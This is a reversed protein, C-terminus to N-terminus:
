GQARGEVERVRRGRTGAYENNVCAPDDAIYGLTSQNIALQIFGTVVFSLATFVMGWGM